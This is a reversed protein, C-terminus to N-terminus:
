ASLYAALAMRTAERAAETHASVEIRLDSVGAEAYAALGDLVQPWSGILHLEAPDALGEKALVRAYSPVAQYRASIAQALAFTGRRDETV